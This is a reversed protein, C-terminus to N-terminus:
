GLVRRLYANTFRGQPDLAARVKAFREWQPYRTALTAARQHHLKGWHPRGEFDDMVQEVADFYADYPEGRYRHVAIFATQRGYAMSLPIDDGGLVRVEVPFSVPHPLEEVVGRVREFAERLHALPVAYEMEAFRVRRSSTFVEDSAAVYRRRGGDGIMRHSLTPVLDPRLGGLRCSLEFALNGELEDQRFRQWRTRETPPRETRENRKLLARSTHPFWFFEVHETTAALEDFRDLTDDVDVSEEVAALNFAPECALTIETVIGLAGLGVRAVEFVEPEVEPSCALVEGDATVLRLGRVASAIGHYGLGTGHTGTAIAGALAQEGIDGLNPFALGLPRLARALEQIRVGAGVTVLRREHDVTRVDRLDALDLMVGDTCAIDPFSHGAGVAKVTLGDRRARRVADVVEGETGARVFRAPAARATGAWNRWRSVLRAPRGAM